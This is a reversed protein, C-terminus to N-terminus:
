ALAIRDIDIVVVELYQYRGHSDFHEFVLWFCRLSKHLGSLASAASM